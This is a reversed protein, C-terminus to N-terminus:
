KKEIFTNHIKNRIKDMTYYDDASMWFNGHIITEAEYDKAKKIKDLTSQLKKWWKPFNHDILYELEKVDEMKIKEQMDGMHVMDFTHYHDRLKLAWDRAEVLRKGLENDWERGPKERREAEDLTNFIIDVADIPEFLAIRTMQRNYEAVKQELQTKQAILEDVNKTLSQAETQLEEIENELKQRKRQFELVNEKEEKLTILDSLADRVYPLYFPSDEDCMEKFIFDADPLRRMGFTKYLYRALKPDNSKRLLQMIQDNTPDAKPSYIWNAKLGYKSDPDTQLSKFYILTAEIYQPYSHIEKDVLESIFPYLPKVQHWIEKPVGSPRAM